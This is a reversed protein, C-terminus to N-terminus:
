WAQWAKGPSGPHNKKGPSSAPQTSETNYRVTQATQPPSSVPSQPSPVVILFNNLISWHGVGWDSQGKGVGLSAHWFCFGAAAPAALSSRKRKQLSGVLLGSILDTKYLLASESIERQREEADKILPLPRWHVIDLIKGSLDRGTQVMQVSQM